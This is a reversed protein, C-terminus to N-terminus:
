FENCNVHWMYQSVIANKHLLDFILLNFEIVICLDIRFLLLTINSIVFQNM